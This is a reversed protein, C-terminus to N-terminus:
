DSRWIVQCAPRTLVSPYHKNLLFALFYELFKGALKFTLRVPNLKLIRKRRARASAFGHKMNYLPRDTVDRDEMCATLSSIEIRSSGPALQDFLREGEFLQCTGIFKERNELM